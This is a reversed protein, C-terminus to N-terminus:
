QSCPDLGAEGLSKGSINLEFMLGDGLMSVKSGREMTQFVAPEFRVEIAYFIRDGNPM